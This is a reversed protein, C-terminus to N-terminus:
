RSDTKWRRCTPRWCMSDSRARGVEELTKGVLEQESFLLLARYARNAFQFRLDDKTFVAIGSPDAELLSELFMHQQQNEELLKLRAAEAQVQETKDIYFITIGETSPYVSVDYWRGTQSGQVRLQGPIGAEMAQCYSEALPTGPLEPWLEWFDKGVLAEAPKGAVHAAYQNVYRVTWDRDLALLGDGLSKLIDSLRQRSEALDREAQKLPTIDRGYVNAYDEDAIPVVLVWYFRGSLALDQQVVRREAMAQKVLSDFPAPLPQDLVCSWGPM